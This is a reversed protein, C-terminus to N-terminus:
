ARHVSSKETIYTQRSSKLESKDMEYPVNDDGAKGPVHRPNARRMLNSPQPVLSANM